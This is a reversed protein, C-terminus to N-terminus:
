RKVREAGEKAETFNRDLAIARQYNVGAEEKKGLAEDCRGMWFYADPETNSVTAAMQFIGLAEAFKKQKFFVIGKELYAQTTKWDRGICSDFQIVAQPYQHVNAYYIGKILFPDTQSHAADNRLIADCLRLAAPNNKEAYLHALELGYEDLPQLRYAQQLSLMAAGSDKLQEELLGKEYWTEFDTSDKQLMAAYLATATAPSGSQAYADALLRNIQPEGQFRKAGEQLLKLREAPDGLVALNAAYPTLYDPKPDLTWAKKYDPNAAERENLRVLRSAREFYLSANGPFKRISDDIGAFRPDAADPEGAHEHCSLLLCFFVPLFILAIGTRVPHVMRLIVIM